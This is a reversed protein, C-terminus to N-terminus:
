EKGDAATAASGTTTSDSASQAAAAASAITSTTGSQTTSTQAVSNASQAASTVNHLAQTQLLHRKHQVITSRINEILTNDLEMDAASGQLWATIKKNYPPLREECLKKNEAELHTNIYKLEQKKREYKSLANKLKDETTAVTVVANMMPEFQNTRTEFLIHVLKNNM